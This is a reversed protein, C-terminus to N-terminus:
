AIVAVPQGKVVATGHQVLFTIAGSATAKVPNFLKMAEVICVADGSKVSAGDAALNPKGLAESRYFTGNLPALVQTGAPVDASAKAPASASAAAAPAAASASSALTETDAPIPDRKAAPAARWKFYGLAVEAWETSKGPFDWPHLLRTPQLGHPRSSDSM